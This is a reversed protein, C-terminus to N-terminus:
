VLFVKLTQSVAWLSEMWGALSCENGLQFSLEFQSPSLLAPLSPPNSWLNQESCCKSGTGRIRPSCSLTQLQILYAYCSRTLKSHSPFCKSFEQVSQQSSLNGCLRLLCTELPLSARLKRKGEGRVGPEGQRKANRPNHSTALKSIDQQFMVRNFHLGTLQTGQSCGGAKIHPRYLPLPFTVGHLSLGERTLVEM